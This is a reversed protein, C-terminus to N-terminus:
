TRELSISKRTREILRLRRRKCTKNRCVGRTRAGRLADRVTGAGPPRDIRAIQVSAILPAPGTSAVLGPNMATSAGHLRVGAPFLRTVLLIAWRHPVAIMENRIPLSYGQM